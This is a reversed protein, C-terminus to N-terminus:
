KKMIRIDYFGINKLKRIVGNETKYYFTELIGGDVFVRSFYQNDPTKFIFGKTDKEKGRIRIKAKIRKVDEM